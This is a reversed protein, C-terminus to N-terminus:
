LTCCLKLVVPTTLSVWARVSLFLCLPAVLFNRPAQTALPAQGPFPATPYPGCTRPQLHPSPSTTTKGQLVPYYIHTHARTCTHSLSRSIPRLLALAGNARRRDQVASSQGSSPAGRGCMAPRGRLNWHHPKPRKKPCNRHEFNLNQLWTGRPKVGPGVVELSQSRPWNRSWETVWNRGRYLPCLTLELSLHNM